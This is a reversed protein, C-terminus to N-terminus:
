YVHCTRQPNPWLHTRYRHLTRVCPNLRTNAICDPWASENHALKLNEACQNSFSVRFWMVSVECYASYGSFTDMSIHPHGPLGCRALHRPHPEHFPLCMTGPNEPPTAPPRTQIGHIPTLSMSTTPNLHYRVPRIDAHLKSARYGGRIRSHANPSSIPPHQCACSTPALPLQTVRM